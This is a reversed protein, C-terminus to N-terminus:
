DRSRAEGTAFVKEITFQTERLEMACRENDGLWLPTPLNLVNPSWPKSLQPAFPPLLNGAPVHRISTTGVDIRRLSTADVDNLRWTGM